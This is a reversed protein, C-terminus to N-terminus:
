CCTIQCGVGTRPLISGPCEAQVGKPERSPFGMESRLWRLLDLHGLLALLFVWKVYGLIIVATRYCVTGLHHPPEQQTEEQGWAAHHNWDMAICLQGFAATSPGPALLAGSVGPVPSPSLLFINRLQRTDRLRELRLANPLENSKSAGYCWRAWLSFWPSQVVHVLRPTEM